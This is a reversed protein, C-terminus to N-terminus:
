PAALAQALPTLTELLREPDAAALAPLSGRARTLTVGVLLAMLAEARLEADAVGRRELEAALPAVVHRAVREQAEERIQESVAPHVLALSIPGPGREESWALITRLAEVPDGPLAPHEAHDLAALYLGEKSGFYRCILAPDVDAQEGIRRVTTADFGHEDFLAAAAELLRRRTAGADHPRRPHTSSAESSTSTM